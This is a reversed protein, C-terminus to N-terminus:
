RPDTKMPRRHGTGPRGNLVVVLAVFLGVLAGGFIFMDMRPELTRGAVVYGGSWSKIAVAAVLGGPQTYAWEGLRISQGASATNDQDDAFTSSAQGWQGRQLLVGAPFVERRGGLLVSGAVPRGAKDFVIVFTDSSRAIDGLTVTTGADVDNTADLTAAASDAARIPAYYNFQGIQGDSPAMVLYTTLFCIAAMLLLPWGPVGRWADQAFPRPWSVSVGAGTAAMLTCVIPLFLLGLIADVAGWPGLSWSLEQGGPLFGQHVDMVWYLGIAFTPGAVVGTWMGVHTGVRETGCQRASWGAVVGPVALGAVVAPWQLAPQGPNANATIWLTVAAVWILGVALGAFGGVIVVARRMTRASASVGLWAYSGFCGTLLLIALVDVKSSEYRGVFASSTWLWGAFAGLVITLAALRRSAPSFRARTRLGGWVLGAAERPNPLTQGPAAVDLLTGVIEDERMRRYHAPYAIMLRRYIAELTPM